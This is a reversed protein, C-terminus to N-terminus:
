RYYEFEDAEVERRRASQVRDLSAEILTYDTKRLGPKKLLRQAASAAISVYREREAGRADQSRRSATGLEFLLSDIPQRAKRKVSDPASCTSLDVLADRATTKETVIEDILGAAKAESASFWTEAELLAAIESKSKGTKNAYIDILRENAKNLVDITRQMDSANGSAQGLPRHIMTLANDSMKVPSGALSIVSAGSAALGDIMTTVSHGIARYNRIAEFIAFSGFVSGGGSNIRVVVNRSEITHLEAIWSEPSIGGYMAADQADGAISDYLLIENGQLKM